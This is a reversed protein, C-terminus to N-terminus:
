TRTYLLLKTGCSNIHGARSNAGMANSSITETESIVTSECRHMVARAAPGRLRDRDVSDDEGNGREGCVDGSETSRM